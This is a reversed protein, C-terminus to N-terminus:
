LAGRPVIAMEATALSETELCPLDIMDVIKERVYQQIAANLALTYPLIFNTATVVTGDFTHLLVGYPRGINGATDAALGKPHQLDSSTAPVGETADM